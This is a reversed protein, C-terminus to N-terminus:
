IHTLTLTLARGCPGLVHTTREAVDLLEHVVCSTKVPRCALINPDCDDSHQARLIHLASQFQGRLVAFGSFRDHTQDFLVAVGESASPGRIDIM